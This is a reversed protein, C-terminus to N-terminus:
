LPVLLEVRNAARLAQLERALTERGRSDVLYRRIPERAAELPVAAAAIREEVRVLHFGAESEIVGSTEGPRLTFAAARLPAAIEDRAKPDHAGGWQRTPHESHRRALEAFDHGAALQSAIADIRVRAAARAPADAQPAVTILIERLRVREPQSFALPNARYFAEIEEDSVAVHREVLAHAARDASLLRRVHRQYGAEDFGLRALGRLFRERSGAREIAQALVREVEEDSVVRNERQAQQWLLEEHILEDLAARKIERAQEPRQLRAININRARLHEEFRRDLTESSIAVGNVKAVPVQAAASAAAALAVLLTLGRCM